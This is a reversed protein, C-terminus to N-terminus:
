KCKHGSAAEFNYKVIGLDLLTMPGKKSTIVPEGDVLSVFSKQQNLATPALIAAELGDKFWDPREAEPIDCLKEEAKSKHPRGANEGYGFSIVCVLKEDAQIVAKCKGRGFTGAVWCTNLGLEQALLVFSEGFYGCLQDLNKESKKGVLALYNSVNKFRGYHAMFTNFCEPEDYILQFHLGSEENSKKIEAELKEKIEAAVPIEKYQRVSHREKIIEKIEMPVM